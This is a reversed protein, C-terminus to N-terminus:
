LLPRWALLQAVTDILDPLAVLLLLWSKSSQLFLRYFRSAYSGEDESVEPAMRSCCLPPCRSLPSAVYLRATM